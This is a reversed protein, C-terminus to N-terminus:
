SVLNRIWKGQKVRLYSLVGKLIEESYVCALALYLSLELYHLSFFAMPVGILFLTGVDIVVGAFADGGARLTGVLHLLTYFKLPLFIAGIQIMMRVNEKVYDSVSFLTVILDAFFFFGIACVLSVIFTLKTFKKELEGAESLRGEGLLNGIIISDAISLGIGFTFALSFITNFIQYAAYAPTSYRSFSMGVLATGLAWMLENMTVPVASKIVMSFFDRSFSLYDRLSAKIPSDMFKLIGFVVLSGTATSIATGIAAGKVGLQPAGFKGFILLYNLFSNLFLSLISILMPVYPRECSRFATSYIQLVIHFPYGLCAIRLYDAGLRIVEPDASFLSIVFHPVLFAPLFFLLLILVSPLFSVGITRHFDKLNRDGWYQALYIQTGSSIGFVTIMFIHFYQNGIGVSTISVDGLMGIMFVDIFGMATLIMNQLTVPFAMRFIHALAIGEQKKMLNEMLRITDFFSQLHM